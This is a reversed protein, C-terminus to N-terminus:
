KKKRLERIIEAIGSIILCTWYGLLFMVFDRGLVIFSESGFNTWIVEECFNNFIEGLGM